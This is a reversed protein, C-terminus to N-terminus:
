SLVPVPDRLKVSKARKNRSNLLNLLHNIYNVTSHKRRKHCACTYHLTMQFPKRKTRFTSQGVHGM